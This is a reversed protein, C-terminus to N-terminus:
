GTRGFAKGLELKDVKKKLETLDREFVVLVRNAGEALVGVGHIREGVMAIQAELEDTNRSSLVFRQVLYVAAGIAVLAVFPWALAIM